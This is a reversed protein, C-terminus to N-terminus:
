KGTMAAVKAMLEAMLDADSGGDDPTASPVPDPARAYVATSDPALPPAPPAFVQQPPNVGQQVTVPAPTGPSVGQIYEQPQLPIHAAPVLGAPPAPDHTIGLEAAQESIIRNTAPDNRVQLVITGENSALPRIAEFKFKPFNKTHDFSLRTVFSPLPFGQGDMTDSFVVLDNLSAAPVRLLLPDNVFQGLTDMALQPDLIVALRKHDGCAKAPKGDDTTRSGFVNKACSACTNAQKQPVSPDPRVGDNSWCTPRDKTGPVFGGPYFTKALTTAARVIILDIAGRPTGDDKRLFPYNRGKYQLSWVKGAYKILGYGGQIGESGKEFEQGQFVDAARQNQFATPLTAGGRNFVTVNSM